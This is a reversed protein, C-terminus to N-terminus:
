IGRAATHLTDVTFFYVGLLPQSQTLALVCYIEVAAILQKSSTTFFLGLSLAPECEMLLCPFASPLLANPTKLSAPTSVQSCANHSLGLSLDRRGGTCLQAVAPGRHQGATKVQGGRPTGPSSLPSAAQRCPYLIFSRLSRM